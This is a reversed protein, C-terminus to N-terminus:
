ILGGCWPFAASTVLAGLKAGYQLDYIAFIELQFIPVDTDPQVFAWPLTHVDTYGRISEETVRASCLDSSPVHAPLM